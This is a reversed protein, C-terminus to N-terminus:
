YKPTQTFILRGRRVSDGLPGHPISDPSPPRWQQLRNDPDDAARARYAITLLALAIVCLTARMQQRGSGTWIAIRSLRSTSGARKSLWGMGGLRPTDICPM